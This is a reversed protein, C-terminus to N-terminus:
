AESDNLAELLDPMYPRAKEGLLGLAEAAYAREEAFSSHLKKQLKKSM